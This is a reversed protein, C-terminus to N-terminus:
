RSKNQGQEILKKMLEISFMSFNNQTHVMCNTMIDNLTMGYCLVNLSRLQSGIYRGTKGISNLDAVSTKHTNFVLDVIKDEKM